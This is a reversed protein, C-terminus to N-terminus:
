RRLHARTLARTRASASLIRVTRVSRHIAIPSIAKMPTETIARTSVNPPTGSAAASRLVACNAAEDINNASSDPMKTIAESDVWPVIVCVNSAAGTRSRTTRAFTSTAAAVPRASATSASSSVIAIPADPPTKSTPWARSSSTPVSTPATRAPVTPTPTPVIKRAWPAAIATLRSHSRIPSLM